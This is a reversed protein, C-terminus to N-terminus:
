SHGALDYLLMYRMFLGTSSKFKTDVRSGNQRFEPLRIILM